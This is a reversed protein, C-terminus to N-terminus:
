ASGCAHHRLDDCRCIARTDFDHPHQASALRARKRGRSPTPVGEDSFIQTIRRVIVAEDACIELSSQRAYGARRYGFPEPGVGVWQGTMAKARRGRSNRETIKKREEAAGAAKLTDIVGGWTSLDAKGGDNAYHLEIGAKRCDRRITNIEVLDEDRTVRDVAFFVVADCAVM